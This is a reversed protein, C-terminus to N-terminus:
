VVDFEQLREGVESIGIELVNRSFVRVALTLFIDFVNEFRTVCCRKLFIEASLKLSAM